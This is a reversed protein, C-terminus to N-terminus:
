QTGTSPTHLLLCSFSYMHIFIADGNKELMCECLRYRSHVGAPWCSAAGYGSFLLTANRGTRLLCPCRVMTVLGASPIAAAGAAALVSTIFVVVMSAASLTVGHAQALFVVCLAEYLATGNMNVTAGLPLVFNNLQPSIGARECCQITVPLTAVSSSTGFATMLAQSMFADFSAV